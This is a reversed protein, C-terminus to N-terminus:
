VHNFYPFKLLCSFHCQQFLRDCHLFPKIFIVLVLFILKNQDLFGDLNRKKAKQNNSKKKLSNVNAITGNGACCSASCGGKTSMIEHYNDKSNNAIQQESKKM